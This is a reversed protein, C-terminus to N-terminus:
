GALVARAEVVALVALLAASVLAPVVLTRFPHVLSWGIKRTPVYRRLELSASISLALVSVAEGLFLPISVRLDFREPARAMYLAAVILACVVAGTLLAGILGRNKPNREFRAAFFGLGPVLTALGLNHVFIYLAFFAPGFTETAAFLFGFPREQHITPVVVDVVGQVLSVVSIVAFLALLAVPWRPPTRVPNAM